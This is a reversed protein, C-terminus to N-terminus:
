CFRAWNYRGIAGRHFVQPHRTCIRHVRQQRLYKERRDDRLTACKTRAVAGERDAESSRAHRSRLILPAEVRRRVWVCVHCNMTEFLGNAATRVLDLHRAGAVPPPGLQLSQGAHWGRHHREVALRRVLGRPLQRLPERQRVAALRGGGLCGRVISRRRSLAPGPNCPGSGHTVSTPRGESRPGTACNPARRFPM